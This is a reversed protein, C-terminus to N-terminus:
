PGGLSGPLGSTPGYPECIDSVRAINSGKGTAPSGSAPSFNYTTVTRPVFQTAATVAALAANDVLMPDVMTPALAVTNGTVGFQINGGGNVVQGAPVDVMGQFIISNAIRVTGSGNTSVVNQPIAYPLRLRPDHKKQYFTCNTVRVNASNGEPPAVKLNANRAALFMCNTFFAHGEAIDAGSDLYPGFVCHDAYIVSSLKRNSPARGGVLGAGNIAWFGYSNAGFTCNRFVTLNTRGAIPKEVASALTDRIDCNFFQNNLGGFILGGIKGSLYPPYGTLRNIEVNRLSNNNSQINIGEAAFNQVKIGGRKNAVIHVNSGTIKIGTALLPQANMGSLSVPGSHGREASQRVVIFSKPIVMASQYTIGSAGGDLYIQDGIRVRNWDIKSPDQWATKWSSGTTGNGSPSVYLARALVEPQAAVSAVIACLVGLAVRMAPDFINKVIGGYGVGGATGIHRQIIHDSIHLSPPLSSDISM